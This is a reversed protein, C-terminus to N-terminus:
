RSPWERVVIEDTGTREAETVIQKLQDEVEGSYSIEGCQDCEYGPVDKVIVVRYGMDVDYRTLREKTHGKCYRCIM